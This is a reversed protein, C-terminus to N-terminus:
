AVLDLIWKMLFAVIVAYTFSRLTGILIYEANLRNNQDTLDGIRFISKAAAAFAVGELNNTLVFVLVLTRELM